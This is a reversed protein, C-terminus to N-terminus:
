GCSHADAAANSLQLSLMMADVSSLAVAFEAGEDAQLVLVVLREPGTATVGDARDVRYRSLPKIIM